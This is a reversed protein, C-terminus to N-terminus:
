RDEPVDLALRVRGSPPSAALAGARRPGLELDHLSWDEIREGDRFVHFGAPEGATVEFASLPHLLGRGLAKVYAEKRTWVRFFAQRRAAPGGAGCAEIQAREFATFNRAAFRDVDIGDRLREVDVGIRGSERVAVLARDGSHSLSFAPGGGALLPRGSGDREFRVDGPAVGLVAGLVRRLAAHATAYLIRDRAFVFRDAQALEAASLVARDEAREREVRVVYVVVEGGASM